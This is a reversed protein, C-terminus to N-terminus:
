EVEAVGGPMQAKERRTERMPARLHVVHLKTAFKYFRAIHSAKGRSLM